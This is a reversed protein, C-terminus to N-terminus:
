GIDDDQFGDEDGEVNEFVAEADVPAAGFAEGDRVFQVAELSAFMGLGGKDAGKVGYFRILANVFCGSYPRGDDAALAISPNRDVVPVRKANNASVVMMDAYGDYVEGTRESVCTNGDKFACRDPKYQVGTRKFTEQEVEKIAKECLSINRKGEPTAPDMLFSGRYKLPGDKASASPTFLHEFSLRVNKLDVEGIKKEKAEAM